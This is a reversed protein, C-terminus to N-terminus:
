PWTTRCRSASSSRTTRRGARSAAECYLGTNLDLKEGRVFPDGESDSALLVELQEPHVRMILAAPVELVRAMLDVIGQWKALMADPIAQDLSHGRGQREGDGSPSGSVSTM